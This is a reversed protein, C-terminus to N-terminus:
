RCSCAVFIANAELAGFDLDETIEGGDGQCFSAIKVWDRSMELQM